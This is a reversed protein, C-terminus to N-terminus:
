VKNRPKTNLRASLVKERADRRTWHNNNVSKGGHIRTVARSAAEVARARRKAKLPALGGLANSPAAGGAGADLVELRRDYYVPPRYSRGEHIVEDAPYVDRHFKDFWTAGIGPRRSMTAYEPRVSYEEGTELDIRRYHEEAKDGTVKKLTYRAVYAATQYNLRGITCFGLGWLDELQQSTFLEQDGDRRWLKRDRGFDQGFILAHYHPRFNTEGYEGCHLFRFPGIAKRMRKAFLQWHRVDLSGDPPVDGPRYTLTVFCNRDHQSAEHVCRLAWQRSREVRCGICQGCALDLPLDPFGEKRNFVVGGGHARYARLPRFCAM